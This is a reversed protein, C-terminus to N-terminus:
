EREAHCDTQFDAIASMMASDAGSPMPAAGTLWALLDHDPLRLIEEFRKLEGPTMVAVRSAAFSGLVIDMERTGRHNARYILRKRHRDLPFENSDM